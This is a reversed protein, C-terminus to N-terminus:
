STPLAALRCPANRFRKGTITIYRGRSYTEIHLGDVVRRTGVAEPLYGWIHLGHGSPSVEIWTSPMRELFQEAVTTLEGTSTLCHDLDICGIGEGLVFGIQSHERVRAHPAWTAPVGTSAPSGDAQIPRKGTTWRVWRPRTRLEKPIRVKRARCAATRCRGSCYLAPRRSRQIDLKEGCQQCEFVVSSM